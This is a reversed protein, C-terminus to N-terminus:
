LDAGSGDPVPRGEYHEALAWLGNGKGVALLSEIAIGHAYLAHRAVAVLAIDAHCHKCTISNM